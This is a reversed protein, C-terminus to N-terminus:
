RLAAERTTTTSPTAAVDPETGVEPAQPEDDVGHGTLTLFVEDLSPKQMSLSAVEIHAERLRVLLDTVADPGTVPVTLRRAEPSPTAPVGFTTEALTMAPALDEPSVLGVQLSQSGVTDKLEDSTGEAVVRGRDIVAIRDALQDAEDLYQTTLVVTSGTAVLGRITDWMQTRTRPDLGTTPEDLFILPPQAILSAALDLRRRMGGSFNKLPRKAAETLGFAELLETSKRRSQARSLGNLRCFLMLNETASLAEDVSAYQGTVGILQRVVFAERQVDHGFIRAEGGDPRLLTALMRITTTKGAGNPGLVGYVTGTRVSLDVGDVARNDGFVKVLGSAEVAWDGTSRTTM